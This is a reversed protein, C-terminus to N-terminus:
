KGVPSRTNDIKFILQGTNVDWVWLFNGDMALINGETPLAVHDLDSEAQMNIMRKQMFNEDLIAIQSARSSQTRIACAIIGGEMAFDFLPPTDAIKLIKGSELDFMHLRNGATLGYLRNGKLVIKTYLYDRMKVTKPQSMKGHHYIRYKNDDLSVVFRKDDGTVLAGRTVKIKNLLRGTSKEAIALGDDNPIEPTTFLMGNIIAMDFIKSKNNKAEWIMTGSALDVVVVRGDSLGAYLFSSDILLNNAFFPAEKWLTRVYEGTKSNWISTGTKYDSTVAVYGSGVAITESGGRALVSSSFFYCISLIGIAIFVTKKMAKAAREKQLM